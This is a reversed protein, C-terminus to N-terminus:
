SKIHNRILYRNNQTEYATTSVPANAAYLTAVHGAIIDEHLSASNKRASQAIQRLTMLHGFLHKLERAVRLCISVLM